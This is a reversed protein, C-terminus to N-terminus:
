GLQSQIFGLGNPFSTILRCNYKPLEVDEIDPIAFDRANRNLFCKIEPDSSVMHSIVSSYVISDQPTLRLDAQYAIAANVISGTFRPKAWVVM